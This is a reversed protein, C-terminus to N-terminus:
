DKVCRVSFGLEKNIFSRSIDSSNYTMRRGLADHTGYETASWWYGYHGFDNFAGNNGRYGGPLATFGTENTAGTNPELWHTTGTEKLKGGAIGEGGLYDTLQTWESDSPLHWGSPCVTKATEWNYLWGYIAENSSNNDYASSGNGPNYSSNEEMWIQNGIRVWKYVQNDRSDIFTDTDTSDNVQSYSLNLSIILASFVCVIGKM